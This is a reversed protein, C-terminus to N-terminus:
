ALYKEEYLLTLTRKFISLSKTIRHISKIMIWTRASAYMSFM